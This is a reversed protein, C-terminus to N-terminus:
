LQEHSTHSAHSAHSKNKASIPMLRLEKGNTNGYALAFCLGGAKGDDLAFIKAMM